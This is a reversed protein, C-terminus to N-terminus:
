RCIEDATLLSTASYWQGCSDCLSHMKFHEDLRHAEATTSYTFTVVGTACAKCFCEYQRPLKPADAVTYDEEAVANATAVKRYRHVSVVSIGLSKAITKPAIGQSHLERIKAITRKSIKANKPMEANYRAPFCTSNATYCLISMM